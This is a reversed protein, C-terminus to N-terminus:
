DPEKLLVVKTQTHKIPQKEDFRAPHSFTRCIFFADYMGDFAMGSYKLYNNLQKQPKNAPQM